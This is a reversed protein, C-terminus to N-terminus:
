LALQVWGTEWLLRIPYPQLDTVSFERVKFTPSLMACQLACGRAVAEDQNLTTSPSHGFVQEILGKIAPVRSGGGVIEVAYIDSTALGSTELCRRLAGGVASLLPAAMEEFAARDLAGSVDKDEMFCEINIPLRTSNASMQKKLKACETALRLRARASKDADLRYKTRFEAVFHDTLLRDFEAGGATADWSTSLVQRPHCVTLPVACGRVCGADSHLAHVGDTSHRDM